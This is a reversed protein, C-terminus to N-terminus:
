RVRVPWQILLEGNGRRLELWLGVPRPLMPELVLDYTEGVAVLQRAPRETRQSSPTEAGDKGVLTWRVPDFGSLLQVTLAVNDATINIFRLRHPIGAKLELPPPKAHGNVVVNEDPAPRYPGDLGLVIVHDSVPDWTQGPELVILPGYIGGALQDPDHWHAHYIFTGVRSPTFRATFTGGAAVAPTVNGPKGSFGAVGDDYSELEIGHWHIATPESLRNVVKVAVPEGRALVMVPGPVARDSVRPPPEAGSVLDVRYGATAGHRQDPEIVLEIQRRAADPIPDDADTGTVHIGLVLGSMGAAAADATHPPALADHHVPHMHVLMHCHFLWNGSREPIWTMSRTAGPPLQETVAMRRDTSSYQTDRRGDGVSEVHFYFGHLHLAHPANTLNAVRWRVTDGVSHELRETHPWSRGNIVTLERISAGSGEELLGLVFVRDRVDAGAPDAVIAGGLQSDTHRTVLPHDGTSAWYHFTGADHLTFRVEVSDGAPVTVVECTATRDCFGHIRLPTTLTNRVYAQVLTGAPVRILPSPITLPGGEEGFAEVRRPTSAEGEPYWDGVGAWLAVALVGDQLHGAPQLNDHTAIREVVPKSAHAGRSASTATQAHAWAFSFALCVLAALAHRLLTKWYRTM